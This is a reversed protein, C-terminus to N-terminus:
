SVQEGRCLKTGGTMFITKGALKPWFDRLQSFMADLDDQFTWRPRVTSVMM